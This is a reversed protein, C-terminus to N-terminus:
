TRHPSAARRHRPAEVALTDATDVWEGGIFAQAPPLTTNLSM